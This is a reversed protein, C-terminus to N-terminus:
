SFNDSFAFYSGSRLSLPIESCNISPLGSFLGTTFFSGTRTLASVGFGKRLFSLTTKFFYVFGLGSTALRLKLKCYFYTEFM